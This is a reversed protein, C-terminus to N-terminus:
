REPEHRGKMAEFINMLPMVELQKALRDAPSEGFRKRRYARLQALEDKWEKVREPDVVRSQDESWGYHADILSELWDESYWFAKKLLMNTSLKM